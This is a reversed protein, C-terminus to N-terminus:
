KLLNYAQFVALPAYLKGIRDKVKAIEEVEFDADPESHIKQTLLGLKFKEEGTMNQDAQTLQSLANIAVKALTLEKDGEVKLAQGDLDTLVTQWQIKM